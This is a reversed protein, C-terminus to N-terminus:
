IAQDLDNAHEDFQKQVADLMSAIMTLRAEVTNASPPNGPDKNAECPRPNLLRCVAQAIRNSTDVLGNIRLEIKSLQSDLITQKTVADQGALTTPARNGIM